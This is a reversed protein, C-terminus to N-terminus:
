VVSLLHEYFFNCTYIFNFPGSTILMGNCFTSQGKSSRQNITLQVNVATLRRAFTIFYKFLKMEEERRKTKRRM